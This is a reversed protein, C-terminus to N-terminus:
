ESDESYNMEDVDNYKVKKNDGDYTFMEDKIYDVVKNFNQKNIKIEDEVTHLKDITDVDDKIQQMVKDFNARNVAIENNETRFLFCMLKNFFEFM